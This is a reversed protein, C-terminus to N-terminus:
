KLKKELEDRIAELGESYKASAFIHEEPIVGEDFDHLKDSKNLIYLTPIADAGIEILTNECVEKKKLFKELPESADLVVLILDSDRIDSLTARFAYILEHPLDRIFGITDNIFVIKDKLILSSTKTSLTTFLEDRAVKDTHALANLLTTKGANTYGALSVIKGEKRRRRRQMDVRNQFKELREEINKIRHHIATITSHIIFEGSGGFGPHEEKIKKSLFMKIYPVKRKLRALEIQLKAEKTLAHKEFVNLILDFKDIVPFEFVAELSMIQRSSLLNEFIVLDVLNDEIFGKIEDVKGTGVLYKPRPKSPQSFVNIVSYGATVALSKIEDEREAFEDEGLMVVVSKM